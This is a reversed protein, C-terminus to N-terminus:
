GVFVLKVSATWNVTKGAAGVVQVVLDNGSVTPTMTWNADSRFITTPVNQAITTVGGASTHVLGKAEFSAFETGTDLRRAAVLIHYTAAKGIGIAATGYTATNTLNVPTASTSQGTFRLDQIANLGDPEAQAIRMHNRNEDGYLTLSQSINSRNLPTVSFSMQSGSVTGTVHQRTQVSVHGCQRLQGGAATAYFTMGGIPTQNQVQAPAAVTGYARTFNIFSGPSNSNGQSHLTVDCEGVDGAVMLGTANFLSPVPYGETTRDVFLRGTTKVTGATTDETVLTLGSGGGGGSPAPIWQTNFDTADIKSLIQGATGGTPVGPGAPGTSGTDGKDGKAGATGTDGKLGQLGQSGTDGKDGKIGQPGTLNDVVAWSGSTKKSVDGTTTNLHFDNNVGTGSAPATTGSYWVSGAAGATGTPADTWELATGSANVKVWKNATYTSPTDTLATFTTVGGGGGGTPTVFGLTNASTVALVNGVTTSGTTTFKLSRLYLDTPTTTIAATSGAMIQVQSTGNGGINIGGSDPSTINFTNLGVLDSVTMVGNFSGSGGSAPTIWQTAFNTNSTKALVQGTTGGTPVGQGTTGAAGTPGTLNAIQTWFGSVKKMVIGTTTNLHYDGEVGTGAAPATAGSFWVSGNTGNVGTGTPPDVFELGTGASNIKVWKNSVLTDPVDSLGTFTSSGSGGTPAATWELATGSSNAKLWMNASFSSPTDTLSIFSTAGSGGTAPTVWQTAFNTSSTKALVQGSTGGTPVGPGVVLGADVTTSDTKTLILRGTGNVTASSIGVGAPGQPGVSGTGSPSDVLIFATGASNVQLFKNAQLSSPADVLQTLRTPPAPIDFFDIGTGAANVKLTRNASGTYAAPTDSLGLFSSAGGTGGTGGGGDGSIRLSNTNPDYVSNLIQVFDKRSAM